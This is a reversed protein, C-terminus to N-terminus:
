ESTQADKLAKAIKRRKTARDKTRQKKEEATRHTPHLLDTQQTSHTDLYDACQRLWGPLQDATIGNRLANNEITGLYMNCSRHLTARIFGTKHCHDLVPTQCDTGCIACRYGQQQLLGTRIPEIDKPKIRQM